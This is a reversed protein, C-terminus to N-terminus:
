RPRLWLQPDASQGEMRVQFHLTDAAYGLVEGDKIERGVSVSLEKLRSYITHLREGHDVIVTMGYGMFRDAFSVRGPYAAKVPTGSACAIDVGLRRTTTGYKPDVVPGFGAAVPGPAPWSLKGQRPDAPKVPPTVTPVPRPAAARRSFRPRTTYLSSCNLAPVAVAVLVFLVALSRM